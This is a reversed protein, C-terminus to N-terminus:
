LGAPVGTLVTATAAGAGRKYAEVQLSVSTIVTGMDDKTSTISVTKINMFRIDKELDAILGNIGAFSAPAAISITVANPSSTAPDATAGTTATASDSVSIAPLIIKYTAAVAELETILNPMDKDEPVAVSLQTPIDGLQTLTTQAKKLSDLKKSASLIDIDLQASKSKNESFKPIIFKWTYLFSSIVILVTIGAYFASNSKKKM